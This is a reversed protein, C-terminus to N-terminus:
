RCCLQLSKLDIPNSSFWTIQGYCDCAEFAKSAGEEIFPMSGFSILKSLSEKNVDYFFAEVGNNAFVVSLPAGIYGAEGIIAVKQPKSM